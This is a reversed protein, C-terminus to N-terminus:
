QAGGVDDAARLCAAEIEDGTLDHGSLVDAIRGHGFVVVRVCQSALEDYESSVLLVATGSATARRLAQYVEQKAGVDIGQTPEHLLLLRPTSEIWRGLVVKQQNGGSLASLPLLPDGPRV